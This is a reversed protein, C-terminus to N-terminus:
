WNIGVQMMLQFSADAQQLAVMAQHINTNQGTVLADVAQNAGTQADNIDSPKKCSNVFQAGGAQGSEKIEPIEISRPQNAGAIRLDTM